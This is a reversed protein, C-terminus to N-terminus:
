FGPPLQVTSNGPQNQQESGPLDTYVGESGNEQMADLPTKIAGEGDTIVAPSKPRSNKPSRKRHDQDRRLLCEIVRWLPPTWDRPDDHNGQQKPDLQETFTMAYAQLENVLNNPLRVMRSDKRNM